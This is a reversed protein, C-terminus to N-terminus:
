CDMPLEICIGGIIICSILNLFIHDVTVATKAADTETQAHMHVMLLLKLAKYVEHERQCISVSFPM